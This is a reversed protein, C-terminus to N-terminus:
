RPLVSCITEAIQNAAPHWSRPSVIIREPNALLEEIMLAWLHPKTPPAFRTGNPATEPLATTVSALSPTGLAAAEHLPLGFGEYWSPYLLLKAHAFLSRMEQQNPYPLYILGPETDPRNKQGTVVLQLDPRNKRVARWAETAVLTNKRSDHSGLALLYPGPILVPPLPKSQETDGFPIVHIREEPLSFIQLLTKKTYASVAFLHTAHTILREAEIFRHWLRSKWSFWRPEILFSLDHILVSYPRTLRGTFDLTPLFLHDPRATKEELSQLRSMYALNDIKSPVRRHVHQVHTPLPGLGLDMPPRWSSTFLTINERAFADFLAPLLHQAVRTVGGSPRTLLCRGDILLHM